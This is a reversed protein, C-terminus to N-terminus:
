QSAVELAAQPSRCLYSPRATNPDKMRRSLKRHLVGADRPSIPVLVRRMRVGWTQPELGAFLDLEGWSDVMDVGDGRDVLGTIELPCGVTYTREGFSVSSELPGVQGSVTVEGIVRSRGTKPNRFCGRTTYLFLRDGLALGGAQPNSQLFAM